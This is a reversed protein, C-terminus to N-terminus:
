ADAAPAGPAAPTAARAARDKPVLVLPAACSHALRRAVGGMLLDDFHKRGHSGIVLMDLDTAADRLEHLVDGVITSTEVATPGISASANELEHQRLERMSDVAQTTEAVSLGDAWADAPVSGAWTETPPPPPEVVALLRLGAGVQSAVDAAWHLAAQSEDSGDYAVGIKKLEQGAEKFGEPAVLIPWTAERAIHEFTTGMFVRGPRGRHTSGLVLADIQEEEGASLLADSVSKGTVARASISLPQPWGGVLGALRREVEPSPSDAVEVLVVKAVLRAAALMRALAVADEGHTDPRYAVVIKRHMGAM